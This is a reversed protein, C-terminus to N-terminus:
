VSGSIGRLTPLLSSSSESGQRQWVDTYEIGYICTCPGHAVYLTCTYVHVNARLDIHFLRRQTHTHTHRLYKVTKKGTNPLVCQISEVPARCYHLASSLSLSLLTAIIHSGSKVEDYGSAIDTDKTM